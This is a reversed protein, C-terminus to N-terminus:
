LWKLVMSMVLGPALFCCGCLKLREFVRVLYLLIVLKVMELGDFSVGAGCQLMECSWCCLWFLIYGEM